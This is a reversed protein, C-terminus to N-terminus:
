SIRAQGHGYIGVLPTLWMLGGTGTGGGCGSGYFKRLQILGARTFKYCYQLEVGRVYMEERYCLRRYRASLRDKGKYKGDKSMMMVDDSFWALEEGVFDFTAFRL